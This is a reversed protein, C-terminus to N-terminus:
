ADTPERAATLASGLAAVLLRVEALDRGAVHGPLAERLEAGAPWDPPSGALEAPAADLLALLRARVETGDTGTGRGLGALSWRLVRDAAVTRRAGAVDDALAPDGGVLARDRLGRVVRARATLGALQLVAAAADLHSAARVAPGAPDAAREAELQEVTASTVVDGALACRLVLGPPWHELVPGLPVHLQDMELGDRDDAGEALPIGQPSMEMDGHDMDGHDMDGHDMDGHDMDGHDPEPAAPHEESPEEPLATRHAADYEQAGDDLLVAAARDLAPAVADATAAHVQARPGPMQDYVHDALAGLREGPRGLVILVDAGAPVAARAWGRRSLERELAARVTLAGPAEVVLVHPRGVALRALLRRVVM